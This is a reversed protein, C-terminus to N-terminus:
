QERNNDDERRKDERRSERGSVEMICAIGVAFFLFAVAAGLIIGVIWAASM